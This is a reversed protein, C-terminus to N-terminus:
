HIIWRASLSLTATFIVRGSEDRVEAVFNSQDACPSKDRVIDPLVMLAERRAADRDPLDSGEDDRIHHEGFQIDFFFIPVSRGRDPAAFSV